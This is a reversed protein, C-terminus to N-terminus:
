AFGSEGVLGCTLKLSNMVGLALNIAYEPKRREMVAREEMNERRKREACGLGHVQMVLTMIERKCNPQQQTTGM